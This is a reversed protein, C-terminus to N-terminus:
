WSNWRNFCCYCCWCFVIKLISNCFLCPWWLTVKDQWLKWYFSSIEAKQSSILWWFLFILSRLLYTVLSQFLLTLSMKTTIKYVCCKYNRLWFTYWPWWQIRFLSPTNSIPKTLRRFFYSMLKDGFTIIGVMLALINKRLFNIWAMFPPSFM